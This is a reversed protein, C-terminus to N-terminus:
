KASFSKSNNIHELLQRGAKFAVAKKKGVRVSEGTRPNRAIRPDRNRISFVGFGRLEIRKGEMLAQNMGDFVISVIVDADKVHMYQHIKALKEVLQSKIM